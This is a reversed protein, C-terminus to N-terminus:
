TAVATACRQDINGMVDAVAIRYFAYGVHTDSPGLYRARYEDAGLNERLELGSRGVFSALESPEIGFNWPEGLARVNALMKDAGDFYTSGDIAGRHIYTFVVSTGPACRGIAALVDVVASETLYNTVGEWV